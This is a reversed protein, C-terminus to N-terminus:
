SVTVLFRPDSWAYRFKRPQGNLRTPDGGPPDVLDREICVGGKAAYFSQAAVNQELVWLYLSSTPKGEVVCRAAEGLLASGIGRRKMDIAVHLNDILSGWIPDADLVTHVFGVLRGACEAVVTSREDAPQMMRRSWAELRDAVIDGDLYADSYAGRYHRRWSDAHLAAVGVSDAALGLRYSVHPEGTMESRMPGPTPVAGIAPHRATM